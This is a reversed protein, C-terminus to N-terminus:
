GIRLIESAQFHEYAHLQIWTALDNEDQWNVESLDFGPIKLIENALEHMQQHQYGWIKVNDDNRPDFPDLVYKQITQQYVIYIQNAIDTHHAAHAYSWEALSQPDHPVNYLGAIGSM